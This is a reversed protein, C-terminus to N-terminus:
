QPSKATFNVLLYSACGEKFDFWINETLAPYRREVFLMSPVAWSANSHHHDHVVNSWDPFAKRVDELAVCSRFSEPTFVFEAVDSNSM